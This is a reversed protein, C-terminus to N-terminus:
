NLYYVCLYLLLLLKWNWLLTPMPLTFRLFLFPLLLLLFTTTSQLFSVGDRRWRGRQQPHPLASSSSYHITRFWLCMKFTRMNYIRTGPWSRRTTTALDLPPTEIWSSQQIQSYTAFSAIIDLHDDDDKTRWKRLTQRDYRNSMNFMSMYPRLSPTSRQHYLLPKYRTTWNVSIKWNLYCCNLPKM